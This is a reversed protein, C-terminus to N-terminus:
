QGLARTIASLREKLKKNEELLDSNKKILTECYDGYLRNYSSDIYQLLRTSHNSIDSAIIRHRRQLETNMEEFTNEEPRPAVFTNLQEECESIVQRAQESISTM